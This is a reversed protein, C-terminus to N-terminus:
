DICRPIVEYLTQGAAEVLVMVKLDTVTPNQVTYIHGFAEGLSKPAGEPLSITM